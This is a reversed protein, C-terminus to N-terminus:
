KWNVAAKMMVNSKLLSLLFSPRSVLYFDNIMNWETYSMM